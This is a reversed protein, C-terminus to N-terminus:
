LHIIFILQSWYLSFQKTLMNTQATSEFELYWTKKKKKKKFITVFIM